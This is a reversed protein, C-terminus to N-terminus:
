RLFYFYNINSFFKRYNSQYIIANQNEIQFQFCVDVMKEQKKENKELHLFLNLYKKKFNVVIRLSFQFDNNSPFSSSHLFISTKTPNLILNLFNKIKWSHLYFDENTSKLFM